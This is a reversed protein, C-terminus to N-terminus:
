LITLRVNMHACYTGTPNWVLVRTSKSGKDFLKKVGRDKRKVKMYRVSVCARVRVFARVCPCLFFVEIRDAPASILRM